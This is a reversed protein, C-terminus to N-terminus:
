TAGLNEALLADVQLLASRLEAVLAQSSAADNARGAKEMQELLAGAHLAGVTRASSKVKHAHDGLATWRGQASAEELAAMFERLSTHFKGLLRAQVEPNNGVVRTLAQADWVPLPDPAPPPAAVPLAAPQRAVAPAGPRARAGFHLAEMRAFLNEPEFPKVVVDDMGADLCLQHDEQRANATMAIVPIETWRPDARMRRVASPGDMVPMHLDMLVMDFTQRELQQLAQAGDMATTVRAGVGELVGQAVDLNLDNDDVVLVRLGALAEGSAVESPLKSQIAEDEQPYQLRATFWFTSGAGEQSRVGVEGGMMRALQRCIALGLGTGGFRRTTSTDGQEFSEFLREMQAASLGIGTDEVEFRLLCAQPEGAGGRGLDREQAQLGVRVQVQGHPTFKIANHIYNILVQELRLSDGVLLTPVEPAVELSLGLQKERARGECLQIVNRLTRDLRFPAFELDLKGADIKSFDLIDNIIRMLHEGAAQVKHLLQRQRETLESKLVLFTLGLMANMPTRIEHSMRALFEGRIRKAEEANTLAVLLERTRENVRAELTENLERLQERAEWRETIDQITGFVGVAVGQRNFQIEGHARLWRRVGDSAREVQFEASVQANDRTAQQMHRLMDGVSDQVMLKRWGAVTHPYDARIGFLTDLTETGSWTQNILDFRFVGIRGALQAQRLFKESEQLAKFAVARDTIDRVIVTFVPHDGVDVRSISAEIPFEEGSSRVAALRRASGMVRNVTQQAAYSHVHQRHADRLGEPILVDLTRGMMEQATRGFMKEAAANFLIIRHREDISIIADMATDLVGAMRAQSELLSREAQKRASIDELIGFVKTSKRVEDRQQNGVSELWHISGDPWRVRHEVFFQEGNRLCREMAEIVPARDEELVRDMYDQLQVDAPGGPLGLMPRVRRSWHMTGGSVDWEWVGLRAFDLSLDFRRENAAIAQRHGRVLRLVLWLAVWWLILFLATALVWDRAYPLWRADVAEDMPYILDVRLRALPVTASAGAVQKGNSQQVWGLDMLGAEVQAPPPADRFSIVEKGAAAVGGSALARGDPGVVRFLSDPPFSKLNSALFSQFVEPNVLLWLSMAAGSEGTFLQRQLVLTGRPPCKGLTGTAGDFVQVMPRGPRPSLRLLEPCYTNLHEQSDLVDSASTFHNDGAVLLLDVSGPLLNQFQRLLDQMAAEAQSPNSAGPFQEALGHRLARAVRLRTELQSFMLEYQQIQGVILAAQSVALSSVSGQLNSFNQKREDALHVVMAAVVLGTVLLNVVWAIRGPAELWWGIHAQLRKRM